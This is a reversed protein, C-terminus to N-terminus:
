MAMHFYRKFYNRVELELTQQLELYEMKGNIKSFLLEFNELEESSFNYGKLMDTLGLIKHINALAPVELGNKDVRCAAISAGAGLVVIHPDQLRKDKVYPFCYLMECM